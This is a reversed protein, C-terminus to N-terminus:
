SAPKLVLTKTDAVAVRHGLTRQLHPLLQEATARYGTLKGGYLSIWRPKAASDFTWQCERPRDFARGKAKPLVRLGAWQDLLQAPKDPFYHNVVTLLYDIESQSPEVNEAGQQHITETTGVLTHDKWPMVFVARGDSPSELYYIAKSYRGKIEIHAGRVLDIAQEPLTVGNVRQNIQNAWPGGANVVLGATITEQKGDHNIVCSYHDDVLTASILEAPQYTKCGLQAASQVVAQTLQQDDTQADWYEFVRQLKDKKLGDKIARVPNICSFRALHTFGALLGYLSLGAYLQWPRRRTNPYIPIRFKVAKVLHPAITLLRQREKLSQYVLPIQASELYRLGGHILKSSKCSTGSGWTNKEILACRYGEASALQAFGAGHIGGGIVLVDYHQLSDSVSDPKKIEPM